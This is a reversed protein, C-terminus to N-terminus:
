TASNYMTAMGINDDCSFLLLVEGAKRNEGEMEGKNASRRDCGPIERDEEMSPAEWSWCCPSCTNLSWLKVMVQEMWGCYGPPEKWTMKVPELVVRVCVRM